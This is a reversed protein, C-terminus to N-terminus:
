WPSRTNLNVVSFIDLSNASWDAYNIQTLQDGFVNVPLIVFVGIIGAFLFVKLSCLFSIIM